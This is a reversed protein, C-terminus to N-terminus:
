APHALVRFRDPRTHLADWAQVYTQLAPLETMKRALWDRARWALLEEEEATLEGTLVRTRLFVFYTDITDFMCYDNIEQLKGAKYLGYVQDGAVDLKGCGPPRGGAARQAMMSLGGAIRCAGFNSVWDMLDLHNGNYRNRSNIFYDRASCGHDFAALELLPLDFGRGNFTVLKSRNYHAVGRWFQRVIEAPRFHPADLCALAQLTFDTAVRLVCVAVPVQFTVPLFDSGDRSLERAEMRAREIAQEATLNEGPYKVRSLLDGDPVSETDFILFGPMTRTSGAGAATTRRSIIDASISNVM